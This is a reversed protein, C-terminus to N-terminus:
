SLRMVAFTQCALGTQCLQWSGRHPTFVITVTVQYNIPFVARNLVKLQEVNNERVEVFSIELETHM